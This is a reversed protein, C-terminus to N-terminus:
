CQRHGSGLLLISSGEPSATTPGHAAQTKACPEDPRHQFTRGRRSRELKLELAIEELFGERGSKQCVQVELCPCSGKDAM